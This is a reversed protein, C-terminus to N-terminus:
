LNGFLIEFMQRRQDADLGRLVDIAKQAVRQNRSLAYEIALKRWAEALRPDSASLQHLSQTVGAVGKLAYFTVGLNHWADIYDPDIQLADRFAAIAARSQQSDRYVQGLNNMAYIDGPEIQLNRQYAEIAEPYRQMHSYARGLVFWAIANDPETRTWHGGWALLGPWDRRKELESARSVWDAQRTAGADPQGSMQRASAPATCVSWVLWLLPLLIRLRRSLAAHKAALEGGRVPQFLSLLTM